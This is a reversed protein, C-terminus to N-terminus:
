IAIEHNGRQPHAGFRACPWAREPHPFTKLARHLLQLLLASLQSTSGRLKDNLGALRALIGALRSLQCRLEPPWSM